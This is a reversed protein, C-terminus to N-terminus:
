LLRFTLQTARSFIINQLSCFSMQDNFSNAMAKSFSHRDRQLHWVAKRLDNLPVILVQRKCYLPPMDRTLCQHKRSQLQNHEGVLLGIGGEDTNAPAEDASERWIYQLKMVKFPSQQLM